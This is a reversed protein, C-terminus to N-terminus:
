QAGEVRLPVYEKRSHSGAFHYQVEQKTINQYLGVPNYIRDLLRNAWKNNGIREPVLSGVM